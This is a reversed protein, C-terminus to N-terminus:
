NVRDDQHVKPKNPICIHILQNGVNNALHKITRALGRRTASDIAGAAWYQLHLPKTFEDTRLNSLNPEM